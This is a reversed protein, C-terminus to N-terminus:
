IGTAWLLLFCVCVCRYDILGEAQQTEHLRSPNVEFQQAPIRVRVTARM